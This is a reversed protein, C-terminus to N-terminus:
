KSLTSRPKKREKMILWVGAMVEWVCCMCVTSRQYSPEDVSAHLVFIGHPIMRTHSSASGLSM